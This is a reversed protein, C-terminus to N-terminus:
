NETGRSGNRTSNGSRDLMYQRDRERLEEERNRTVVKLINKTAVGVAAVALGPIGGAAFGLGITTTDGVIDLAKNIQDQKIYDGTFNGVNSAAYNFVQKGVGMMKHAFMSSTAMNKAEDNKQTQKAEGAETEEREIRIRVNAM